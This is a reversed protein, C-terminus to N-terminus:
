KCPCSCLIPYSYPLIHNELGGKGGTSQIPHPSSPTSGGSHLQSRWSLPTALNYHGQLCPHRSGVGWFPEGREKQRSTSEMSWVWSSSLSCSLRSSLRRPHLAPQFLISFPNPPTFPLYGAWNAKMIFTKGSVFLM